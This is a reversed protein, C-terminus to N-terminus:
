SAPPTVAVPIALKIGQEIVGARVVRYGRQPCRTDIATEGILTASM